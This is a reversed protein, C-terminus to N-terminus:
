SVVIAVSRSVGAYCHVLVAGTSEEIHRAIFGHCVDFHKQLETDCRDTLPVALREVAERSGAASVPTLCLVGTIGREQLAPGNRAAAMSGLYLREVVEVPQCDHRLQWARCLLGALRTDPCSAKKAEERGVLSPATPGALVESGASFDSKGHFAQHEMCDASM